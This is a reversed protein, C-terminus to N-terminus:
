GDGGGGDDNNDDIIIIMMPFEMWRHFLIIIPKVNGVYGHNDESIIIIIINYVIFYVKSITLLKCTFYFHYFFIWVDILIPQKKELVTKMMNWLIWKNIWKPQKNYTQKHNHTHTHTLTQIEYIDLNNAM